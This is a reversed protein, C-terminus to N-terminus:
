IAGTIADQIEKYSNEKILVERLNRWYEEIARPQKRNLMPMVYKSFLSEDGVKFLDGAFYCIVGKDFISASKGLEQIIREGIKRKYVVHPQLGKGILNYPINKWKKLLSVDVKTEPLFILTEPLIFDDALSEAHAVDDESTSAHNNKNEEVKYNNLFAGLGGHVLVPSYLHWDDVVESDDLLPKYDQNSSTTTENNDTNSKSNNETEVTTDINITSTPKSRIEGYIELELLANIEEDNSLKGNNTEKKKNNNNNGQDDFELNWDDVIDNSNKNNSKSTKIPSTEGEDWPDTNNNNNNNNNKSNKKSENINTNLVEWINDVVELANSELVPPKRKSIPAFPRDNNNNNNKPEVVEMNSNVWCCRVEKAWENNVFKGEIRICCDELLEELQEPSLKQQTFVKPNTSSPKNIHDIMIVADEDNHIWDITFDTTVGFIPKLLIELDTNTLGNKIGVILIANIANTIHTRENVSVYEKKEYNDCNPDLVFKSILTGPIQTGIVKEIAVTQNPPYDYYTVQFNYYYKAYKGYFVTHTPKMKPLKLVTEKSHIFNDLKKELECVWQYNQRTFDCLGSPYTCKSDTVTDVSVGLAEALRRNREKLACSDDCQLQIFTSHRPNSLTAGCPVDMSLNGCKCVAMITESCPEEEPCPKGLHCKVKCKHPCSKKVADCIEQCPESECADAHCIRNCKHGCDSRRKQCPKGCSVPNTNFCPINKVISGGCQCKRETLLVCPPCPKDDGHCNHVSFQPHGCPKRRTCPFHCEVSTVGCPIPAELRTKGCHCVLDEFTAIYCRHCPGRHCPEQCTHNGCNLPKNCTLKCIHYQFAELSELPKGKAPCCVNTCRHRGCNLLNNCKKDCLPLELEESSNLSLESCPTEFTKSGCRCKISVKLSCTPCPGFHCKAQCYHGCPLLKNCPNDCFVLDDSCSTRNKGGLLEIVTKAGCPCREYVSPDYPCCSSHESQPHCKRECKHINCPYLYNCPTHCSYKHEKGCDYEKSEKGCYCTEITKEKCEECPGPHCLSKCTHKQCNLLKDCVEGCTKQEMIVQRNKQLDSCRYTYKKKGCYCTEEPAFLTCPPCPGPHCQEKCPHSCDRPKGCVNSCSHPTIYPNFRPNEIKGCFCTYKSPIETIASQCGPCRWGGEEGASSVDTKAWKKICNLHFVNYCISCSWIYDKPKVVNYCVMCEYTSNTLEVILNFQLDQDSANTVKKTMIEVKEMNTLRHNHAKNNRYQKPHSHNHNNSNNSDNNNSTNTNTNNSESKEKNDNDDATLKGFDKPKRMLVNRRYNKSTKEDLNNDETDSNDGNRSNDHYKKNNNSRHRSHNRNSKSVNNVTNNDTVSSSDGDNEDSKNNNFKKKNRYKQNKNSKKNGKSDEDKNNNNNSNNSNNNDQPKRNNRNRGNRNSKQDQNDLTTSNGVDNSNHSQKGKDFKRESNKKTNRKNNKYNKNNNNNNSTSTTSNSSTNNRNNDNNSDIKNSESSKTDM